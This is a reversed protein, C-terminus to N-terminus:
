KAPCIGRLTFRYVYKGPRLKYPKHLYTCGPMDGGVGRQWGDLNLTFYPDPVLEDIHDALDLREQGWPHLSFNLASALADDLINKPHTGGGGTAEVRLGAGDARRLELWRLDTRNGNEQPRMYNHELEAAPLTHIAIKQGTKRDCHSEHPGRGYWAVQTFDPRLECRMGSKLIPLGPLFRTKNTFELRGNGHVRCTVGSRAFLWSGDRRYIDVTNEDARRIKHREHLLHKSAFRWLRHPWFKLLKPVFNAYSMDNDIMARFYNPRLGKETQLLEGDGFDLGILRGRKFAAKVHASTLLVVGGPLKQMQLSAPAPAPVPAAGRLLFQSFALEYGEPAWAQTKRLRFGVSLVVEGIVPFEAAAYPIRVTVSGGPAAAIGACVGTQLIEGNCLVRWLVETGSLNLFSYKNHIRVTQAAPDFDTACLSAYCQKVEYYSPHPERDAGIIGNACFYYSSRSEGFDGGYSWRTRGNKQTRISQDVYDWIFGGCMHPYKEFDECYERFNGLSNEMAHAFECYLVPHTAYNKKPIAKNDAALANAVNDFLGPRFEKQQRMKKVLDETPYMRSIFDSVTYSEDGEYHIPRSADLALLAQRMHTFNAGRGAENGLSWFCVCAHSRDRLVMRETRDVVASRWQPHDGPCNKRRVGHSEVDAEDMVYFGLEDCLEYFFPDDPYHSTRIANINARKMLYLDEYYRERPVAWGHDPDFDHRNVGKLIIRRGNLKLVNGDIEVRRFGIRIYKRELLADGDFLRLELRYLQPDEASWLRAAPLEHYFGDRADAYLRKGDLLVELRLTLNEPNHLTSTLHLTGTVNDSLVSTDAFFDAIHAKPEAVLYVERYIGSFSWMDQDELYYGTSFRTVIATVQNKGPRVFGTVDFEAPTMSGQSYGVRRGNLFVELASKAAGFHLLIRRGDWEAPLDFGRRYVGAENTEPYVTPIERKKISVHDKHLYSCLYFPQGYGELEWLSPVRMEAWKSDDFDPATCAPDVGETLNQRWAFRWLGNLTRKYPSVDYSADDEAGFPLALNHGPLKNEGIMEPDQWPFQYSKKAM